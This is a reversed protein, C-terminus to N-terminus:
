KVGTSGCGGLGRDTKDLSDVRVFETHMVPMFVLQAIRDNHAVKFPVTGRNTLPVLVENRYAADITGIGQTVVINHKVGLGSRSRVECQYGEPIAM